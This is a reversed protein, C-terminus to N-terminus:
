TTCRRPCWIGKGESSTLEAHRRRLGRTVTDTEMSLAGSSLLSGSLASDMFPLLCRQGLRLAFGHEHVTERYGWTMTDTGMSFARSILSSGILASDM